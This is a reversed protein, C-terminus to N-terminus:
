KGIVSSRGLELDSDFAFRYTVHKKAFLSGTATQLAQMKPNFDGVWSLELERIWRKKLIVKYLHHIIGAEIGYRQFNPSIGMIVMRVRSYKHLRIGLMLRFKNVLNLKGNFPKILQNLDPFIVEFGIPEDNHYAFWILEPDIIAKAKKFTKRLTDIEIPTFNEHFRWAKDYIIKFDALFKESQGFKFHKYNFEKKQLAWEAIKEFREPIAKTLDLHNTRQQFYEKFGYSEFLQQYYPLNYPMGYGPHTYGQILLGWFNDNEGFNIPGDMAKMGRCELWNRCADFLMFAANQCNVCEFFGMGGTPVEYGNAKKWNIFAAVRGIPKNKDYLVWRVAEGNTYFINASPDFVAKIEVDLPCVWHPDDRYLIRAVEFFDFEVLKNSVQILEM